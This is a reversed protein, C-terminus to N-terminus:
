SAVSDGFVLWHAYARKNREAPLNGRATLLYALLNLKVPRLTVLGRRIQKLPERIEIKSEKAAQNTTPYLITASKLADDSLAYIALQYLMERPFSYEFLDRYKADLFSVAMNGKMVAFDPRPTPARRNLPNHEKVYNMMGRLRYEGQVSYGPLHESLFRFLLAQFFRNMDFLFGPLATRQDARQLSTGASEMLLEIIKLAPEYSATLRNLDCYALLLSEPSLPKLTVFEQLLRALQLIRIKLETDSVLYAALHLGALLIQNLPCDENRLYYACPLNADGPHGRRVISQFDIRGRPVALLEQRELYARHLGRAWLESIEASLQMGFLDQFANTETSYETTNLLELNRLGYAYRLLHL